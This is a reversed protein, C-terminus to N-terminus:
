EVIGNKYISDRDYWKVYKQGNKVNGYPVNVYQVPNTRYAYYTTSEGPKAAFRGTSIELHLHAGTTCTDWPETGSYGGVIGIPTDKTVVDNFSVMRKRMHWYGSIFVEGNVNHQIFVRIGGCTKDDITYVVKGDAIPYVYYDNYNAGDNSMDLGNHFPTVINRPGYWGTIYGEELPRVIETSKPLIKRECEDIEDDLDCGNELYIQLQKESAEIQQELTLSLENIEQMQSQVKTLEAQLQDQQEKLNIKKQELEKTKQEGEKIDNKYQEVLSNNYSTLQESVALRYIFNTFDKAGFAYELYANEGSAVQFFVLIDEIEEEKAIINNNLQKIQDDLSIIEDAINSINVSISNINNKINSLEEETLEKENQNNEYEEKYQELEEKYEGVTQAKVQPIYFNSILLCIIFVFQIIIKSVKIM